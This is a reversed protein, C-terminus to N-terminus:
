DSLLKLCAAAFFELLVKYFNKKRFSTTIVELKFNYRGNQFQILSQEQRYFHECVEKYDAQSLHFHIAKNQLSQKSVGAPATSYVNVSSRYAESLM